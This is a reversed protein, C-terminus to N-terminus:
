IEHQIPSVSQHSHIVVALWSGLRTELCGKTGGFPNLSNRTGLRLRVRVRALVLDLNCSAYWNTM